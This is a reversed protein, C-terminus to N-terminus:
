WEFDVRLRGGDGESVFRKRNRVPMTRVLEEDIVGIARCRLVFRELITYAAPVDIILDPMMDYVREFGNKMQDYSITFSKVLSQLLKAMAEETKEHMAEIVMVVAEYVLEHHFHPVELEMLCRNAESIDGCNVYEKLLMIIKKVLSKVPRVGGGVGWVNDLRVLGHKMSFLTSARQLANKAEEIEVHGKYSALFKPPICDDAIARAMFNGLVDSADPTDLILDPLQNMLYDFAKGLDRQSIVKQYLESILCSAMERHSPKHDMALEILVTVIMWRRPGLNLLIEQLSVLVEGCDNNEFYELIMPQVTKIIDDESMEPVLSELTASELEAESEYNPDLPDVWPLELECGLRGWTGKGGAGKKPLSRGFGCRSKRHNKRSRTQESSSGQGGFKGGESMSYARERNPRKTRRVRPDNATSAKLSSGSARRTKEREVDKKDVQAEDGDEDEEILDENLNMKIFTDLDDVLPEGVSISFSPGNECAYKNRLGSHITM